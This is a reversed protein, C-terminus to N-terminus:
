ERLCARSRRNAVVLITRGSSLVDPETSWRFLIEEWASNMEDPLRNFLIDLGGICPDLAHVALVNLGAERHERKIEDVTTFYGRFSGNRPHKDYCGRDMIEQLQEPRQLAVEPQRSLVYSLFGARTLASTFVLGCDVLSDHIDTLFKRREHSEVLHYMPGMNLIYPFKGLNLSQFERADLVHHSVLHAVQQSELLKRNQDILGESIDLADVAFRKLALLLTYFGAGAGLELVRGTQRMYKQLVRMGILFELTQAQNRTRERNRSYYQIVDSLDDKSELNM